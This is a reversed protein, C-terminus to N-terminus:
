KVEVYEIQKELVLKALEKHEASYREQEKMKYLFQLKLDKPLQSLESIYFEQIEKGWKNKGNASQGVVVKVEKSVKINLKESLENYDKKDWYRFVYPYGEIKFENERLQEEMNYFEKDAFYAMCIADAENDDTINKNTIKRAYQIALQKQKERDLGKGLMKFKAKWTVAPILMVREVGVGYLAMKCAGLLEGLVKHTRVNDGFSRKEKKFTNQKLNENLWIDELSSIKVDHEKVLKEIFKFIDKLKEDLNEGSPIFVGSNFYKRDKFVCWGFGSTSQDLSLQNFM